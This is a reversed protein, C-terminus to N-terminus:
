GIKEVEVNIKSVSIWGLLLLLRFVGSVIWALSVSTLNGIPVITLFLIIALVTPLLPTRTGGVEPQFYSSIRRNVASAFVESIKENGSLEMGAIKGLEKRGEGLILEQSQASVEKKSRELESLAEKRLMERQAPTLNKGGQSDILSDIEKEADVSFDSSELQTEQFKLVFQDVTLNESDLNEFEPNTISLIRTTILNSVRGTKLRPMIQEAPVNQIESFYQSSVVLALSFIILAKGTTISKVLDIKINLELDRRIKRAGYLFILWALFGIGLRSLDFSFIFSSLISFFFTGQRLNENKVLIISLCVFVFWLSSWIIPVAWTSSESITIARDVSNWFAFSFFVALFVAAYQLFKNSMDIVKQEL